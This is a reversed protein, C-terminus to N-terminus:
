KFTETTKRHNALLNSVYTWSGMHLNKAIWKLSMTTETRLRVALKVKSKDGKRRNRLDAEVWRRRQLEEALIQRAKQEGAEFRDAGSHAPGLRQQAAALLEQRFQDPGVCWNRGDPRYDDHAQARRNETQRAFEQRGASTDRPIRKEGLLRDVRLWSPRRNAPKLFESYSSWPFSELPQRNKLLGARAPNLHVYDCVTLLYGPTSADIILAKYRGAFLHGCLKHRINFRKTYVGLLWKMGAVLNPQPTEIVLHFHNPMLCFAHIQWETKACAEALCALFLKRDADDLFIDERRDGRNMVHYLAGPYELRLPRPM